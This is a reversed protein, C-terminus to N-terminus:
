TGPVAAPETAPAPAAPPAAPLPVNGGVALECQAVRPQASAADVLSLKSRASGFGMKVEQWVFVNEGPKAVFELTDENEAKSVLAHKGPAVTKLLFTKAATDGLPAGDLAVSMKVAAGLSEDRFVYLNAKGPTAKFEKAARDLEPPAKPVSACAALLAVPLLAALRNM